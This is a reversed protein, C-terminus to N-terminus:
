RIYGWTLWGVKYLKLKVVQGLSRESYQLFGGVEGPPPAPRPCPPLFKRYFCIVEYSLFSFFFSWVSSVWLLFLKFRSLLTSVLLVYSLLGSLLYFSLSVSLSHPLSLHFPYLSLHLPCSLHDRTQMFLFPGMFPRPSLHNWVHIHRCTLVSFFQVSPLPSTLQTKCSRHSTLAVTVLCELTFYRM